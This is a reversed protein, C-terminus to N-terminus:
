VGERHDRRGGEYDAEEKDKPSTSTRAIESQRTAQTQM